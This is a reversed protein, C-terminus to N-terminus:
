EGFIPLAKEACFNRVKESYPQRPIFVNDDGCFLEAVILFHLREGIAIEASLFLKFLDEMTEPFFVEAKEPAFAVDFVSFAVFVKKYDEFRKDNLIKTFDFPALVNLCLTKEKKHELIGFELFKSEIFNEGADGVNLIKIKRIESLFKASKDDRASVFDARKFVFKMLFRSFCCMRVDVGASQFYIPKHLFYKAWLFVITWLFVAETKIAFLGGGPFIIKEFDEEKLLKITNRFKSDSLFRWFSRFGSPFFETTEFDQGLFKQSFVADATMVVANPYQALASALILEDGLNRAGFNGIILTKKM